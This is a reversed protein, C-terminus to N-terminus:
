YSSIILQKTYKRNIRILYVGSPLGKLDLYQKSDTAFSQQYVLQGVANLLELQVSTEEFNNFELYFQGENPNPYINLFETNTNTLANVASVVVNYCASTETCNNERLEVAYNGNTSPTFSAQTAGSIASGTSCDIWQYTALNNNATLTIGSLSVVTDVAYVDISIQATNTCGNATTGTVHYVTSVTPTFAVGNSIGNDWLYTSGGGGTLSIATNPRICTSNSSTNATINPVIYQSIAETRSATCGRANTITVTYNGQNTVGITQSTAGTSWQYNYGTNATLLLTDGTCFAFSGTNSSIVTAINGSLDIAQVYTNGCGLPNCVEVSLSHSTASSNWNVLISNTASSSTITGGVITWNYTANIHSATRYSINTIPDSPCFISDGVIQHTVPVLSSDVEIVIGFDPSWTGDVGKVRTYLAHAGLSLSFTALNKTVTELAQDFNGDFALLAIGNGQGPDTDWYIEGQLIRVNRATTSPTAAVNFVQTFSPSWAGDAGQVRISLTHLGVAPFSSNNSFVTEVAENFNGDFALMVTGNGQGPDTDWYYEAAQIHIQHGTTQPTAAVNFVQTFSPSWAGDAGQVRISFTHLGTSPLTGNNTFVMEVAEDFNGDFALLATGNGQGPDTDWYYEAAQIHIQHGTTQPTAAVNFVQTFSPSWAGNGGRVRISFTHLGTSPLTSNNTFVTEIAEDFNGDFALLAIGNGQGPDTDWYYEAAQINIQHGTTQPTAAVNVVQTFSPSWTGDTGKVRVSLTHLGTTPLSSINTFVTELAEDFNGDLAVLAIGNGQGPDTDWYYEAAQIQGQALVLQSNVIIALLLFLYKITKATM